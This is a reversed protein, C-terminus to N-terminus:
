SSSMRRHAFTTRLQSTKADLLIHMPTMVFSQHLAEAVGSLTLQCSYAFYSDTSQAQFSTLLAKVGTLIDVEVLCAAIYHQLHRTFSM